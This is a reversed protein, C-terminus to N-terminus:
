MVVRKAVDVWRQAGESARYADENRYGTGPDFDVDGYFSREREERLWKAISIIADVENQVADSFRSRNALIIDSVEHWKPPDIAVQRLMAKQSLEVIEQSERVVDSYSRAKMLVDLIGMRAGAKALYSRALDINTM